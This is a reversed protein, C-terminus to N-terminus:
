GHNRFAGHLEARVKKAVADAEDFTKYCGYHHLKGDIGFSVDWTKTRKHFYVNKAGSTNNTYKRVNRYNETRTCERLNDWRNNMGNGDIHDVMNKPFEGNVYLFALRHGKYLVKDIKISVYHSRVKPNIWNSGAIKGLFRPKKPDIWTFIGTQPDYHLVEKLRAYTLM